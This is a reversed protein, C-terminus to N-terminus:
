FSVLSSDMCLQGNEDLGSFIMTLNVYQAEYDANFMIDICRRKEPVFAMGEWSAKATWKEDGELWDELREGNIPEAWRDVDVAGAYVLPPIDIGLGQEEVLIMREGVAAVGISHWVGEQRNSRKMLALARRRVVPHRCRSVVVHLHMVLGPDLSIVSPVLSQTKHLLAAALAIIREFHPLFADFQTEPGDVKVKLLLRLTTHHLKLWLLTTTHKELEAPSLSQLYAKLSKEWELAESVGNALAIERKKQMEADDAESLWAGWREQGAVNLFERIMSHLQMAAHQFNKVTSSAPYVGGHEGIRSYPYPASAESFSVGELDMRVLSDVVDDLGDPLRDPLGERQGQILDLLRRGSALHVRSDTFRGSLNAVAVLSMSLVLLSSPDTMDKALAMARGYCQTAQQAFKISQERTAGMTLMEWRRHLSGLAAAANWVAPQAHAVQLFRKDWFGTPLFSGATPATRARFFDFCAVADVAYQPGPSLIRSAPGVASLRQMADALERRTLRSALAPGYGDCKRKSQICRKCEPRTEDCKVRRIRCTICGTRTRKKPNVSTTSEGSDSM